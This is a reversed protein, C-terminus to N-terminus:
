AAEQAQPRIIVRVVLLDEPGITLGTNEVYREIADPVTEGDAVISHARPKVQPRKAELRDLRTNLETARM